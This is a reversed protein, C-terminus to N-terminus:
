TDYNLRFGFCKVCALSSYGGGRWRQGVSALETKEHVHDIKYLKVFSMCLM